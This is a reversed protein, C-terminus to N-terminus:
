FAQTGLEHVSWSYFLSKAELPAKHRKRVGKVINGKVETKLGEPLFKWPTCAGRLCNGISNQAFLVLFKKCHWSVWHYVQNGFLSHSNLKEPQKIKTGRSEGGKINLVM